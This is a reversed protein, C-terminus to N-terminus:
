GGRGRRVPPAAVPVAPAFRVLSPKSDPLKFGDGLLEQWQEVSREEDEEDYAAEMDGVYQHIRKRFAEYARDNWRHDFSAGSRSPDEISPKSDQGQLWADVDQVIHLLTTPVDSYYNPDNVLLSPLVREGLITTLIISKTGEFTGKHDRLFKMIRIVRRLNGNTIEDKERMWETFGTPNTPEWEDQDANVIVQSGDSLILYPVIDLHFDGKYSLRVCRCKNERPMGTYPKIRALALGLETVYTKPHESWDPVETLELLFDADFEHGPLPKIITEHAWSGQRIMRTILPGFLRDSKLAGYVAQSSEQLRDLRTEDLNVTNALFYNFHGILKL